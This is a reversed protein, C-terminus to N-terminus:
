ARDFARKLKKADLKVMKWMAETMAQKKKQNTSTHWKAIEVPFIQWRVGFKDILWGCQM